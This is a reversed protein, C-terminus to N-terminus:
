RSDSRGAAKRGAEVTVDTGQVSVNAPLEDDLHAALAALTPTKEM